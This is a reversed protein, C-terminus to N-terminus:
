AALRHVTQALYFEIHGAPSHKGAQFIGSVFGLILRLDDISPAPHCLSLEGLAHLPSYSGNARHDVSYTAVICKVVGMDLLEKQFHGASVVSALVQYARGRIKEMRFHHPLINRLIYSIIGQTVLYEGASKHDAAAKAVQHFVSLAVELLEENHRYLLYGPCKAVLESRLFAGLKQPEHTILELKERLLAIDESTALNPPQVSPSPPRKYPSVPQDHGQHGGSSGNRSSNLLQAMFSQGQGNKKGGKDDRMEGTQVSLEDDDEDEEGESQLENREDSEVVQAAPKQTARISTTSALHTQEDSANQWINFVNRIAANESQAASPEPPPPSVISLPASIQHSPERKIRKNSVSMHNMDGTLDVVEDPNHEVSAHRQRWEDKVLMSRKVGNAKLKQVFSLAGRLM